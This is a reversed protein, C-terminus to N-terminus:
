VNHGKYLKVGKFTNLKTPWLIINIGTQGKGNQESSQGYKGNIGKCETSLLQCLGLNAPQDATGVFFTWRRKPFFAALWGILTMGVDPRIFTLYGNSSFTVYM